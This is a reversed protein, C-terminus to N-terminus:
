YGGADMKGLAFALTDTPAVTEPRVTMLDRVPRDAFGPEGAVKALFDRETLIGALEGAPGVVLVAGVGRDIMLRIAHGLDADLPVTVPERPTLVTVPSTMLDREVRDHGSPNDLHALALMCNDCTDCGAKNRHGCAPCYM